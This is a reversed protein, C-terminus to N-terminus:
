GHQHSQLRVNKFDVLGCLILALCFGSICTVILNGIEYDKSQIIFRLAVICLTVFSVMIWYSLRPAYVIAAPVRKLLLLYTALILLGVATSIHQLAYFLPYKVGEYPIYTGQYLDINSTFFTNNHTFGDWFIHSAAGLLASCAYIFGRNWLMPKWDALLVGQLKQQIIIPMNALLNKKVVAHFLWGLLFTVPLDFYFLGAVAHSHRSNVSMKFFYEFDPAMSGIVLATASVYRLRLLPIVIAIHAPTFPM